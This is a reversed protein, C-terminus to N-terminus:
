NFKLQGKSVLIILDAAEKDKKASIDRLCILSLREDLEHTSMLGFNCTEVAQEYKYQTLHEVAKKVHINNM